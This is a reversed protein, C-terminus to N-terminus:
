RSSETNTSIGYKQVIQIYIIVYLYIFIFIYVVILLVLCFIRRPVEWIIILSVVFLLLLSCSIGSCAIEDMSCSEAELRIGIKRREIEAFHDYVLKQTWIIQLQNDWLWPTTLSFLNFCQWWIGNSHDMMIKNFFFFLM